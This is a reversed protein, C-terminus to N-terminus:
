GHSAEEKPLVERNTLEQDAESESLEEVEGLARELDQAETHRARRHIIALAAKAVTAGDFFAQLSLDTGLMRRIRSVAQSALLSDGGLAFFDDHIGVPSIGLLEQWVVVLSRETENRPEQYPANLEPRPHAQPSSQRRSAIDERTPQHNIVQQLDCVSVVVRPVRLSLARRFTEVGETSSIKDELHTHRIEQMAGSGGSVAMGTERWADWAISIVNSADRRRSQGFADLFSNASSYAAQGTGGLLASLSSFLVFFDPKDQSLLEELLLTGEVKAAMTERASATTTLELLSGGPIGAAHIVGDVHGFREHVQAIAAALEERDACDAKVLLVEAGLDELAGVKQLREAHTPNQASLTHRAVLALRPKVRRALDAAIELGIGGTGGTILYVGSPRLPIAEPTRVHLPTFEQVWRLGNRLAIIPSTTQELLAAFVTDALSLDEIGSIDITRCSARSIEQPIVKCPGLVLANRPELAERGTVECIDRTVVSLDVAEMEPGIALAQALFLLSNFGLDLIRDLADAPQLDICWLHVIRVPLEGRRRLEQLLAVYHEPCRPDITFSLDDASFRDGACVRMVVQGSERLRGALELGLSDAGVFFLWCGSPEPEPAPAHVMPSQRWVPAYLWRDLSNRGGVGREAHGPPDVWFRQREFPYVPLALRRRGQGTNFAAWDVDIGVGWMSGLTNLLGHLASSRDDSVSLSALITRSPECQKRALNVLSRGPGVELLVRSPERLLEAVGDSFRVAERVHRVWYDPSIAQENTIWTGTLNSLFPVHPPRLPIREVQERFPELVPDMMASHFAHSTHLRVGASGCTALGRELEVVQEEPGSVVTQRPANLTAVSLDGTLLPAVDAMSLSVAIMVGPPMAEMLRGRAAVVELADPLSMVGAICAAVYEGISHGIMAQPEVGWEMWLRAMAYEIAFLAPQAIATHRLRRESEDRDQTSSYLLERLDLNLHSALLDCCADLERRFIPENDYLEQGMAPSQSGQGPFMFAVPPRGTVGQATFVRSPDGAALAAAAEKADSCVVSRRCEFSHRGVQLTYAVDALNEDSHSNLWESLERAAEDLASPSRASLTLLNLRRSSDAKPQAPAEGLVVHANTGGIGFSSVGALRPKGPNGWDALATNVFFPSSGFAIQPNPQEFHLSPPIKAHRVALVTKIFGAIGAAADLHGLNTKVSGIACSRNLSTSVRFAKTLAAIEIPDGLPTGTGHAEVYGIEAADIGALAQAAAIVEAQGDVSPATYGVKSAGDNNVASGLIVADVRDRDALADQLRKLVVVGVGSGGVTGRAAGDFARCHGDPSYIGGEEYYYGSQQPVKITAGGALAMDCECTLLAQCATHVAVLSTSCATQLTLCPGRLNLKYAVRTAFFDRDNGLMATAAAADSGLASDLNNLLYSSSSLGAYVGVARTCRVPDYGANELAHWACQLFLRQQPDLLEAERPSFGFFAADFVEADQLVGRARVYSPDILAAEDIGTAKLEEDTFFTISEVGNCLNRWFEDLNRAGPFRGAMGIVAIGSLEQPQLSASM